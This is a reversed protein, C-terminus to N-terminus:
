QEDGDGRSVEDLIVTCVVATAPRLAYVAGAAQNVM